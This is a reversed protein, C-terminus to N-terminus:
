RFLQILRECIEGAQGPGFACAAWLGIGIITTMVLQAFVIGFFGPKRSHGSRYRVTQIYEGNEPVFVVPKEPKEPREPEKPIVPKREKEKVPIPADFAAEGGMIKVTM